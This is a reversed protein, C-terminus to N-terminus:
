PKGEIQHQDRTMTGNTDTVRVEIIITREEVSDNPAVDPLYISVPNSMNDPSFALNWPGVISWEYTYPLTLNSVQGVRFEVHTMEDGVVPGEIVARPATQYLANIAMVDFPHPSCDPESFDEPVLQRPVRSDYNMVTDPISPHAPEDWFWSVIPTYGSLGLAHGAEHVMIEYNFFDDDDSTGVHCTNFSTDGAQVVTDNGPIDKDGSQRSYNVLVDVSGDDLARVPPTIFPLSM